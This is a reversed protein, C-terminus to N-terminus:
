TTASSWLSDVARLHDLLGVEDAVSKVMPWMEGGEALFDNYPDVLLLATRRPDYQYVPM